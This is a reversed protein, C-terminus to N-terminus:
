AAMLLAAPIAVALVTAATTGSREREINQMEVIRDRVGPRLNPDPEIPTGEPVLKALERQLAAIEAQLAAEEKETLKKAFYEGAREGVEEKLEKIALDKAVSGVLAGFTSGTVGIPPPPIEGKIMANVTQAKNYYGIGTKVKSLWGAAKSTTAVLEGAKGVKIATAGVKAGAGVIGGGAEVAGAAAAEGGGAGLLGGVKELVIPGLYVAAVIAAAIYVKKRIKVWSSPRYIACGIRGPFIPWIHRWDTNPFKRVTRQTKDWHRRIQDVYQAEPCEYGRETSWYPSRVFRRIDNETFPVYVRRGSVTKFSYKGLQWSPKWMRSPILKFLTEYDRALIVRQLIQEHETLPGPGAATYGPVITKAYDTAFAAREAAIARQKALAEAKAQDEAARQEPTLAARRTVEAAVAQAAAQRAAMRGERLREFRFGNPMARYQIGLDDLTSAVIM